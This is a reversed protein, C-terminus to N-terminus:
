RLQPYGASAARREIALVPRYCAAGERPAPAAASTLSEM